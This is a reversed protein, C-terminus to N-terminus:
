KAKKNKDLDEIFQDILEQNKTKSVETELVKSAAAFAVNIISERIEEQAKARERLISNKAHNQLNSAENNATELIQTKQVDADVRANKIILLSETKADRLVMEAERRDKNALTQKEVADDLLENIKARRNDISSRFPKYVLKSLVIIIVITALVHAIFNPLNPFLQGVVEPVGPTALFPIGFTM